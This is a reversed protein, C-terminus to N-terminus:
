AFTVLVQNKEVAQGQVVPLAALTGATPSKIVNEMKMAELILLPDGKEVTAGPQVLLQKILGPMPAKLEKVVFSAAPDIGISKLLQQGLTEYGVAVQKGNLSVLVRSQEVDHKLLLLRWTKGNVQAQWTHADLRKWHLQSLSGDVYLHTADQVLTHPKGAIELKTM